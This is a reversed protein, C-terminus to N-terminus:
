YTAQRRLVVATTWGAKGQIFARYVSPFGLRCTVIGDRYKDHAIMRSLIHTRSQGQAQFPRQATVGTRWPHSPLCNCIGTAQFNWWARCCIGDSSRPTALHLCTQAALSSPVCSSSSRGCANVAASRRASCAAEASSGSRAAACRQRQISFPPLSGARSEMLSTRSVPTGTTHCNCALRDRSPIISASPTSRDHVAKLM